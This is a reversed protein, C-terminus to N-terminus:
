PIKEQHDPLQFFSLFSLLPDTNGRLPSKPSRAEAATLTAQAPWSAGDGVLELSTHDLERHPLLVALCGYKSDTGLYPRIILPSAMREFGVPKIQFKGMQPDSLFHFNIPMGFSARPFKDVNVLRVSYKPNATTPVLARIREPEPWRSRGAKNPQAPDSGRNRGVLQGQRFRQLKGLGLRLAALPDTATPQSYAFSFGKAELWPIPDVHLDDSIISGFGRRTRGGLGGLILWATLTEDLQAELHGPYQLVLTVERKFRHLVGARPEERRNLVEKPPQLPFAAYAIEKMDDQPAVTWRKKEQNFSCRFVSVPEWEDVATGTPLSVTQHLRISVAGPQSAMGWIKKEEEWLKKPDTENQFARWWFRLQGRIAASRIPTIRDPEKIHREAEAVSSSVGGGFVPTIVKFRITREIMGRQQPSKLKTYNALMM